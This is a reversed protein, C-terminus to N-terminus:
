MPLPSFLAGSDDLPPTAGLRATCPGTKGTLEEQVAEMKSTPQTSVRLQRQEWWGTELEQDDRSAAPGYLGGGADRGGKQKGLDKNGDKGFRDFGSRELVIADSFREVM